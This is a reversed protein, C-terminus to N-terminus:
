PLVSLDTATEGITEPVSTAREEAAGILGRYFAVTRGLVHRGEYNEAVWARAAKGMAGRLDPDGLINLVAECIAASDGPPVLLGTIGPVVADCSGTCDTSVVPIGSAAAELVANPFGERRSPLVLVDMASYFPATDQVFGTQIVQPHSEVRERIERDLADEGDDFWGVLLLYANPERHLLAGFAGLLEPIGKDRTLRGVFGIVPADRSIGLHTRTESAGPRFRGIDVGNSSGRGLVTLKSHSAIGCELARRRLSLSNCIVVDACRAAMWEAGLLLLRKVGTATELKLGRLFYIRAPAGCLWAAISGLFGAKPTSFEVLDPHLRRILCWIRVLAVCDSFLSINRQMPIAYTEAGASKGTQDLLEGPSSLLSVRFGSARLARLRDTLVVCTQSSTVGILIHGCGPLGRSADIGNIGLM